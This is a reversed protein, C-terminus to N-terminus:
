IREIDYYDYTFSVTAVIEDSGLKTDFELGTIAYPHLHHFHFRINELNANNLTTLVGDYYIPTRSKGDRNRYEEFKTPKSYSKIWNFTEEFVRLDEDIIVTIQFTEFNPKDGHLKVDTFPNSFVVPTTSIGPINVKQCFYKAFPLDPITFLYKTPQLTSTNEPIDTRPSTTM